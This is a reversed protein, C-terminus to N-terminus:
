ANFGYANFLSKICTHLRIKDFLQLKPIVEGQVLFAM